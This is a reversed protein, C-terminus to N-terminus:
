HRAQAKVGETGFLRRFVRRSLWHSEVQYGQHGVGVQPCLDMTNPTNGDASNYEAEVTSLATTKQMKSKWMIPSTNYLMVMSSTSRHSSSNSWDADAYGTLLGVLKMGRSYTIKFSSHTSLYEMLHHLAAWQATGASPPFSPKRMYIQNRSVSELRSIWEQACAYRANSFGVM